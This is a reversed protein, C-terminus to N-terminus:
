HQRELPQVSSFGEGQQRLTVHDGERTSTQPVPAGLWTLTYRADTTNADVRGPGSVSVKKWPALTLRSRGSLEFTAGDPNLTLTEVGRMMPVGLARVLTTHVFRRPDVETVSTEMWVGGLWRPWRSLCWLSMANLLGMARRTAGFDTISVQM